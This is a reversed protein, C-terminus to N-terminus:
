TFRNIDFQDESSKVPQELKNAPDARSKNSAASAQLDFPTKVKQISDELHKTKDIRQRAPTEMVMSIKSSNLSDLEPQPGDPPENSSVPKSISNKQASMETQGLLQALRSINAQHKSLTEQSAASVKVENQENSLEKPRNQEPSQDLKKRSLIKAIDGSSRLLDVM